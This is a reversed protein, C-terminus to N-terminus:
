LFWSWGLYHYRIIRSKDLCFFHLEWLLIKCFYLFNRCDLLLLLNWWFLRSCNDFLRDISKNIFILILKLPAWDIDIAFHNFFDNILHMILLEDLLGRYESAHNLLRGYQDFIFHLNIWLIIIFPRRWAVSKTSVLVWHGISQCTIIRIDLFVQKELIIIM